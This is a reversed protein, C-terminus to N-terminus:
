FRTELELTWKLTNAPSNDNLGFLYGAEYVFKSKSSLRYAGSVVPGLQLAQSGTFGFEDDSGLGGYLEFGPEFTPKYSYKTRWQYSYETEDSAGGGVEREATLNLTHVWRQVQKELLLKLELKDAKESETPFEYEVYFGADLWYKGQETLQFINEWASAEHHYKENEDPAREYEAFVSSFWWDTIGYGVEYIDTRNGDLSANADRDVHGRVELELEGKEVHPSYVKHSAQVDHTPVILLFPLMVIAALAAVCQAMNRRAERQEFLKMLGLILVLTIVYATLQLVDPRDTYGILTHLIRGTVSHDPLIGSTNWVAGGLSPLINAQELYQAGQAAMGAALLLILWTTVRFLYRSPIRLLGRYLLVGVIIGAGIGMLGGTLMSMSGSSDSAAIGNLFLVVEAGERLVALGIVVALMSMSREGEMVEAGYQRFKSALERGHQQMWINHWGLMFVATFLIMANFVEQGVGEMAAMLQDAAGATLLAGLLGAILGGTVWRGRHPVGQTAALVIGIILGAELVERFVILATAYM